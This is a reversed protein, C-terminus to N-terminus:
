LREITKATHDILDVIAEIQAKNMPKMGRLRVTAKLNDLARILPAVDKSLDHILGRAAAPAAADFADWGALFRDGVPNAEARYREAAPRSLLVLREALPCWPGAAVTAPARPKM